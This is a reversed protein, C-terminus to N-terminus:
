IATLDAENGTIVFNEYTATQELILVELERVGIDEVLDVTVIETTDNIVTNLGWLGVGYVAIMLAIMLGFSGLLKTQINLKM